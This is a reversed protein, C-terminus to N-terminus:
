VSAKCKSEKKEFAENYLRGIVKVGPLITSYNRNYDGDYLVAGKLSEGLANTVRAATHGEAIFDDIWVAQGHSAGSVRGSSHHKEDAKRVVALPLKLWYAVAGGVCCGSSGIVALREVQPFEKEITKVCWEVLHQYTEPEVHHQHYGCYRERNM